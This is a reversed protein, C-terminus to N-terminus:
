GSRETYDWGKKVTLIIASKEKCRALVAEDFSKGATSTIPEQHSGIRGARSLVRKRCSRPSNGHISAVASMSCIRTNEEIGNQPQDAKIDLTAHYKQACDNKCVRCHSEVHCHACSCLEEASRDAHELKVGLASTFRRTSPVGSHM